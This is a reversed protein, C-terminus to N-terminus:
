GLISKECALFGEKAGMYYINGILRFRKVPQNSKRDSENQRALASSAFAIAGLLALFLKSM